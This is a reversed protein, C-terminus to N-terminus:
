NEGTIRHQNLWDTGIVQRIDGHFSASAGDVLVAKILSPLEDNTSAQTLVDRTLSRSRWDIQAPDLGARSTLVQLDEIQPYAAQLMREFQQTDSNTFDLAGELFHGEPPAPGSGDFDPGPDLGWWLYFTRLAELVPMPPTQILWLVEFDHAVDAGRGSVRQLWHTFLEDASASSPPNGVARSLEGPEPRAADWDGLANALALVHTSYTTTGIGLTTAAKRVFAPEDRGLTAALLRVLATNTDIEYSSLRALQVRADLSDLWRNHDVGGRELLALRQLLLELQLASHGALWPVGGTDTLIAAAVIPNGVRETLLAHRVLAAALRYADGSRRAVRVDEEAARAAGALDGHAEYLESRVAYMITESARPRTSDLVDEPRGLSEYGIGLRLESAVQEEDVRAQRERDLEARDRLATAVAERAPEPLSAASEELDRLGAEDANALVDDFSDGAALRHYRVESAAGDLAPNAAYYAAARRHVDAVLGPTEFTLARLAPGRLEERLRLREGEAYALAPESRIAEIMTAADLDGERNIAPVVVQRVADETIFRLVVSARAVAQLPETEKPRRGKLHALIRHYLFGRVFETRVRDLTQSRRAAESVAAPGEDRLVQAALKLTLPSGGVAAVVNETLVPDLHSDDAAGVLRVYMHQLVEGATGSPFEQVHLLQNDARPDVFREAPVRGSVVLRFERVQESLALFLEYIDNEASSSRQAVEFTDLLVVLRGASETNLLKAVDFVATRWAEMRGSSTELGHGVTEERLERRLGRLYREVGPLQAEVQRLVDALLLDPECSALSPRDLDLYAWPREESAASAIDLVLQAVLTSKGVGGIGYVVLPPRLYLNTGTGAGEVYDVLRRREADRGVCGDETLRRIPRLLEETALRGEIPEREYGAPLLDPMGGLSGAALLWRAVRLAAVLEDESARDVDLRDGEIALDLVKQLPGPLGGVATRRLRILEARGGRRVAQALIRIRYTEKLMWERRSGRDTLTDCLEALEAPVDAHEPDFTALVALPEVISSVALQSVVAARGALEHAAERDVVGARPRPMSATM